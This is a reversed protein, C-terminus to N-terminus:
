EIVKDARLLIENPIKIGLAKATKRNIVVDFKTSQEVPLDGPKAGKLIKDVFVAAYRFQDALNDGYSMLGGDEVYERLTAISPLRNKAALEAIQRRQQNFFPDLGVIMAGANEKTMVSFATEIDQPTRAEAPLVKVSVKQAAAQVAKLMTAHAPNAPNVLVAVRALKPVITLLMELHKPGVEGSLNSIGTINGGPLALSKVFGADVPDISTVIVIPITTTAKQAVIIVPPGAAVIVDVKLRVLEAALNPLGEYKGDAFRWEIVLNKGEVYGLDRMGTPFAGYDGTDLSVPRRRASLFGIRWIKRQQQAISSFPAALAGAGLAVILKRRTNLESGEIQAGIM